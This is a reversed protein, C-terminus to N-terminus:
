LGVRWGLRAAKAAPPASEQTEAQDYTFLFFVPWRDGGM